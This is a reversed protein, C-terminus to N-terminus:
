IMVDLAIFSKGDSILDVLTDVSPKNSDEEESQPSSDVSYSSDLHSDLHYNETCTVDFINDNNDLV